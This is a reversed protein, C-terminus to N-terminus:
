TTDGVVNAREGLGWNGDCLGLVWYFSKETNKVEQRHHQCRQLHPLLPSRATTGGTASSLGPETRTDQIHPPTCEVVQRDGVQSRSAPPYVSFHTLLLWGTAFSLVLQPWLVFGRCLLLLLRVPDKVCVGVATLLRHRLGRGRWVSDKVWGAWDPILICCMGLYFGISTPPSSSSKSLLFKVFAWM